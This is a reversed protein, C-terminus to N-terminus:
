MKDRKWCLKKKVVAGIGTPYSLAVYGRVGVGLSISLGYSWGM